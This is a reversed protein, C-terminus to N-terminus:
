TKKEERLQRFLDQLATTFAPADFLPSAAVQARLGARLRSLAELDAAHQVARAVFDHRDETVWDSLGACSLLSAGQRSLLTDGALTLTPVGM